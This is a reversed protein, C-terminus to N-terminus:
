KAKKEGRLKFVPINVDLNIPVIEAKTGNLQIRWNRCWFELANLNQEVTLCTTSQNDTIMLMQSDDAYKFKIWTTNNLM